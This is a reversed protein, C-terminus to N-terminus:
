RGYPNYGQNNGYGYNGAKKNQYQQYTVTGQKGTYPNYNGQSSYNNNYSRDPASRYHPQVYTGDKRTYGRVYTDGAIATSALLMSLSLTIAIIKM